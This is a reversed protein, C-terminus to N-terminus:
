VIFKVLVIGGILEDRNEYGATGRIGHTLVSLSYSLYASYIGSIDSGYIGSGDGGSGSGNNGNGLGGTATITTGDLTATSSNGNTPNGCFNGTLSAGANYTIVQGSSVSWTKYSIGGFGGATHPGGDCYINGIGGGGVVWIKVSSYGAPITFSGSGTFPLVLDTAPLLQMVIAGASGAGGTNGRGYTHTSSNGGAADIVSNIGLYDRRTTTNSWLTYTNLGGSSPLDAVRGSSGGGGGVLSSISPNIVTSLNSLTTSGGAVTLDCISAVPQGISGSIAVNTNSIFGHRYSVGGANGTSGGGGDCSSSSSGGAGISWIKIVKAGNPVTYNSNSSLIVSQTSFPPESSPTPTPTPTAPISSSTPTPTPTVTVSSSTTSTVSSTYSTEGISNVVKMRLYYQTSPDLGTIDVTSNSFPLSTTFVTWNSNDTSSEITYTTTDPLGGSLGKTWSLSILGVGGTAALSTPNTPSTANLDIWYYRNVLSYTSETNSESGNNTTYPWLDKIITRFYVRGSLDIPPSLRTVSYETSRLGQDYTSNVDSWTSGDLSYQFGVAANNGTFWSGDVPEGYYNMNDIYLTLRENADGYYGDYYNGAVQDGGNNRNWDLYTYFNNVIYSLNVLRVVKSLKAGYASSVLCRVADMGISPCCFPQFYNSNISLSTSTAGSINQWAKNSSYEGDVLYAQWQYTLSSSDSVSATISFSGNENSLLIRDNKPESSITIEPPPAVLVSSSESSYNGYGVSNQGRVRFVYNENNPIGTVKTNKFESSPLLDISSGTYLAEGITYRLEDMRGFVYNNVNHSGSEGGMVVLGNNSFNDNNTDATELIRTGNLYIRMTGNQRCFVLHKLATNYQGVGWNETNASLESNTFTVGYIDSGNVFKAIRSHSGNYGGSSWLAFYSGSAGNYSGFLRGVSNAYKGYSWSYDSILFMELTYDGTGPNLDSSEAVKIIYPSSYGTRNYPIELCGTGFKQFTGPSSAGGITAPNNTTNWLIERGYLSSDVLTASGRVEGKNFHLLLRTNSANVATWSRPEVNQSYELSYNTRTTKDSSSGTWSVQANGDGGSATLNSPATPATISPAVDSFPLTPISFTTGDPYRCVGRTIRIDDLYGHLYSTGDDSYRGISLPGSGAPISLSSTTSAIQTGNQYTRVTSGQRVVAYHTWANFIVSGMNLQSAINWNSFDSSIFCYLTGNDNWGVLWPNYGQGTRVRCIAPRFGGTIRYEWYEITFDEDYFDFGPHDPVTLYDGSGDFYISSGGFKNKAISLKADGQVSGTKPLYSTDTITTSNHAGDFHLLLSTNYFYPDPNTDVPPVAPTLNSESAYSGTGTLNVAAVRVSYTTANALGTVSIAPITSPSRNVTTWNTGDTSYQVSYDTIIGGNDEAPASWVMNIRQDLPGAILDTPINPPTIQTGTSPFPALLSNISFNGLYRASGIGKTIRIEDLHGNFTETGNTRGGLFVAKSSGLNGPASVSFSESGNIYTKVTGNNRVLALHNWTNLPVNSSGWDWYVNNIWLQDSGPGMRWLIGDTYNGIEVLTRRNSNDLPYVWLEITFDGTGFGFDTNDPISAYQNSGNLVLSGGGFRSRTTSISAGNNLTINKPNPSSDIISM